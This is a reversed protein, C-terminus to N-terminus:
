KAEESWTIVAEFLNANDTNKSGTISFSSNNLKGSLMLVDSQAMDFVDTYGEKKLFDAYLKHLEDATMEVDFTVIFSTTGESSNSISGTVNAGDPMPISDPFEAPLEKSESFQTSQSKGNEDTTQLSVTGDDGESTLTAEGKDTTLKVENGNSSVEINGDETSITASQGCASLLLILAIVVTYGMMNHKM